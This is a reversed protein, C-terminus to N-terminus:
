VLENIRQIPIRLWLKEYFVLNQPRILLSTGKLHIDIVQDDDIMVSWREKEAFWEIVTGMRGNVFTGTHSTLGNIKVRVGPAIKVDDDKLPPLCSRQQRREIAEDFAKKKDTYRDSTHFSKLKLRWMPEGIFAM